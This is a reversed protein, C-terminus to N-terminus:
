EAAVGFASKNIVPVFTNAYGFGPELIEEGHAAVDYGKKMMELYVGMNNVDGIMQLGTIRDGTVAMKKHVGGRRWEMIREGRLAGFSGIPTDFVRLVNTLELGTFRKAVDMMNYGAIRGSNIANPWTPIVTQRGDTDDTEIIDGAAFVNPVSTKMAKDVIIGRNVAINTGQVISVDARVGTACVALDCALVEGAVRIGTVEDAGLIEESEANLRVDVGGKELLERVEEAMDADLMNPLVQAQNELVSVSLGLRVLSQAIELGIFGSGIVVARKAGSEVSSLVGDADALTKLAYIGKKNADLGPIPPFFARAGGAILLRDYSIRGDGEGGEVIAEGAATDVGTVVRGFLTTIDLRRYFEDDRIFLSDRSVSGEVYEALPCPSYCPCDEKAIMTIECARDVGRVTEAATVAAPGNGVIVIKM